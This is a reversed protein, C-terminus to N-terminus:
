HHWGGGGHYGGWGGRYYGGRYGGGFGFAFSVSPYCGNYYAPSYCPYYYGGYYPRYSNAYYNYTQTDPIVYVTSSQAPVYTVPPPAVVTATASSSVTPYNPSVNQAAPRPQSLMTNIVTDSVGQQKLYVIQNADLGYSSGSNQIYNVITGESVNAKSLQIIQSVGYSLQVPVTQAASTTSDQAAVNRAALALVATITLALFLRSATRIKM